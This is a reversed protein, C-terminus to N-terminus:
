CPQGAYCPPTSTHGGAAPAIAPVSAAPAIAPVSQTSSVTARGLVFSVALLVVIALAILGVRAAHTWSTGATAPAALTTTSMTERETEGADAVRGPELVVEPAAEVGGHM